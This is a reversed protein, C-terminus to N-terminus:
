LYMDVGLNLHGLLCISDDPGENPDLAYNIESFYVHLVPSIVWTRVTDVEGQIDLMRCKKPNALRNWHM